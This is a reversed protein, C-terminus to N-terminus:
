STLVTLCTAERSEPKLVRRQSVVTVTSGKGGDGVVTLGLGAKAAWYEMMLLGLGRPSRRELGADFGAGDDRVQLKTGERDTKVIIEIKSCGAHRVANVAAEEAIKEMAVGAAVPLRRSSDYVLRLSGPFIGSLRGMLLDLAPQLGAREVMGPNLRYSLERVQMVARDLLGQIEATRVAIGPVSAELDMRLIDLQLGAGSLIQAIEDHLARALKDRDLRQKDLAALALRRFRRSDPLGQPGRDLTKSQDSPRAILRTRKLPGPM